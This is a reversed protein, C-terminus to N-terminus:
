DFIKDMLIHNNNWSRQGSIYFFLLSFSIRGVKVNEDTIKIM